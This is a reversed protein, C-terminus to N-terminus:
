VCAGNSCMTTNTTNSCNWRISMCRSNGTWPNTRPFYEILVEPTACFDTFNYTTNTTNYCTGNQYPNNGGDTDTIIAIAGVAFIMIFGALIMTQKKM